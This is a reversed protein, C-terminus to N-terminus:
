VGAGQITKGPTGIRLGALPAGMMAEAMAGTVYGFGIPYNIDELKAPDAILNIGPDVLTAMQGAPMGDMGVMFVANAKAQYMQLVPQRMNNWTPKGDPDLPTSMVVVKGRASDPTIMTSPDGFTGGYVITEGNFRHPLRPIFDKMGYFQRGDVTLPKTTSVRLGVLPLQQFYTGSDGGPKLGLKKLEGAIYDTGKNNYVTGAARGMMSDDAFIYLRTMLDGPTIAASTPQPAHKLPLSKGQASLETSAIAALGLVALRNFRAHM